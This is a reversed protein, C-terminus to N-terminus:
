FSVDQENVFEVVDIEAAADIEDYEGEEADPFLLDISKGEYEAHVCWRHDINYPNTGEGVSVGLEVLAILLAHFDTGRQRIAYFLVDADKRPGDKYLCGGTLAVRYGHEPCITEIRRCFDVAEAQTWKAAASM